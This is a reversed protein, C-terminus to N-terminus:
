PADLRDVQGPVLQRPVMALLLISVNEDTMLIGHVIENARNLSSMGPVCRCRMCVVLEGILLMSSYFTGNM